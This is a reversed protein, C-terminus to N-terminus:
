RYRYSIYFIGIYRSLRYAMGTLSWGQIWIQPHQLQLTFLAYLCVSPNVSGLANGGQKPISHLHYNSWNIGKSFMFYAMGTLSWGQIWIQPYQLQLTFLAYLCVSPHVSGLANDGQKAISHLHYNSWNIGKSFLFYMNYASQLKGKIKWTPDCCSFKEHNKTFFIKINQTNFSIKNTTITVYELVIHEAQGTTHM